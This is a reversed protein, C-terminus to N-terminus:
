NFLVFLLLLASLLFNANKIMNANNSTSVSFEDDKSTSLMLTNKFFNKNSKRFEWPKVTIFELKLNEFPKVARMQFNYYSPAGDRDSNDKVMETTYMRTNNDYKMKYIKLKNEQTINQYNKLYTVYGTSPNAEINVSFTTNGPVIMSGDQNKNLIFSVKPGKTPPLQRMKSNSTIALLSSINIFLIICLKLIEFKM